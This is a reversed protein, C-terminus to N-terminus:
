VMNVMKVMKKGNEVHKKKKKKNLIKGTTKVCASRHYWKTVSINGHAAKQSPRVSSSCSSNPIRPTPCRILLGQFVWHCPRGPPLPCHHLFHDDSSQRSNLHALQFQHSLYFKLTWKDIWYIRFRDKIDHSLTLEKNGHHVVLIFLISISLM